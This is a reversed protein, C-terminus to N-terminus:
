REVVHIRFSREDTRGDSTTITNTLLYNTGAVGGSVWVKTVTDDVITTPPPSAEVTLGSSAVWGSTAVTEGTQLWRDWRFGFDIIADPDKLRDVPRARVAVTM